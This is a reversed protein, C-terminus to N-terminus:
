RSVFESLEVDVLPIGFAPGFASVTSGSVEDYLTDEFLSALTQDPSREEQQYLDYSFQDALWTHYRLSDNTALSDEM